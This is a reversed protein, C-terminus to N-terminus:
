VPEVGLEYFFDAEFRAGNRDNQGILTVIRYEFGGWTFHTEPGGRTQLRNEHARDIIGRGDIGKAFLEAVGEADLSRAQRDCSDFLLSPLAFPQPVKMRQLKTAM